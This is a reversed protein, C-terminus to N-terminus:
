AHYWPTGDGGQHEQKYEPIEYYPEPPQYPAASPNDNVAGTKGILISVLRDLDQLREDVGSIEHQVFNKVLSQIHENFEQLSKAEAASWEEESPEVNASANTVVKDPNDPVQDGVEIVTPVDVKKVGRPM